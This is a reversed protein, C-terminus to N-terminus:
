PYIAAKEEKSAPNRLKKVTKIMPLSPFIAKLFSDSPPPSILNDKKIPSVRPYLIAINDKTKEVNRASGYAMTLKNKFSPCTTGKPGNKTDEKHIM